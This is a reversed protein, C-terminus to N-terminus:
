RLLRRKKELYIVKTLLLNVILLHPMTLVMIRSKVVGAKEVSGYVTELLGKCDWVTYTNCEIPRM